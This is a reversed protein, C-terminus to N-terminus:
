GHDEDKIISAISEYISDEYGKYLKDKNYIGKFLVGELVTVKQNNQASYGISIAESNGSVIELKAIISCEITIGINPMPNLTLTVMDDNNSTVEIKPLDNDAM